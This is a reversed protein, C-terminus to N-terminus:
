TPLLRMLFSTFPNARSFFHPSECFRRRSTGHTTCHHYHISHRPFLISFAFGVATFCLTPISNRHYAYSYLHSTKRSFEFSALPSQVSIILTPLATYLVTISFFRWSSIQRPLAHDRGAKSSFQNAFSVPQRAKNQLRRHISLIRLPLAVSLSSIAFFRLAYSCIPYFQSPISYFLRPFTFGLWVLCQFLVSLFLLLM